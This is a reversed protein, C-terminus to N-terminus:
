SSTLLYWAFYAYFVLLLVVGISTFIVVGKTPRNHSGPRWDPPDRYTQADM